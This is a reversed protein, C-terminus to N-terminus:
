RNARISANHQDASFARMNGAIQTGMFSTLSVNGDNVYSPLNAPDLFALTMHVAEGYTVPTAGTETEQNDQTPTENWHGWILANTNHILKSLEDPTMSM